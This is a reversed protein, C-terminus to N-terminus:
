SLSGISSAVSSSARVPGCYAFVVPSGTQGDRDDRPNTTRATTTTTTTM